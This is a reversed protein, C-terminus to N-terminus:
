YYENINQIKRQLMQPNKHGLLVKGLNKRAKISIPKPDSTGQDVLPILLDFVRQMKAVQCFKRLISSAVLQSAPHMKQIRMRKM